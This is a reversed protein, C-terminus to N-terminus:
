VQWTGLQAGHHRTQVLTSGVAVCPTLNLEHGPFGLKRGAVKKEGLDFCSGVGPAFVLGVGIGPVPRDPHFFGQNALNEDIM